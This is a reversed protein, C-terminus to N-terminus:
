VDEDEDDDFYDDFEESSILEFDDSDFSFEDENVLEAIDSLKFGYELAGPFMDLLFSAVDPQWGQGVQVRVKQKEKNLLVVVEQAVAHSFRLQTKM